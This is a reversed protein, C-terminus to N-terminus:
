NKWLNEDKKKRNKAVKKERIKIRRWGNIKQINPMKWHRDVGGGLPINPLIKKKVLPVNFGNKIIQPSGTSGGETPTPRVKKKQNKQTSWHLGTLLAPEPYEVALARRHPIVGVKNELLWPYSLIADVKIAAEYFTTPFVFTRSKKGTEEISSFQLQVNVVHEGGELRQGSATVFRLIKPAGQFLHQSILGTRVLNAQAGTDILVKLNKIEGNPLITPLEMILQVKDNKTCSTNLIYYKRPHLMTTDLIVECVQSNHSVPEEGNIRTGGYVGETSSGGMEHDVQENLLYEVVNEPIRGKMRTSFKMKYGGLRYRHRLRGSAGVILNPCTRYDCVRSNKEVVNPSGWFRTPKCYGWDSFQCYDLDIHPYADLIGRSKLKGTRPNEIWWKEPHLYGIIDLTRHVIADAEEMKRGEGIKTKAQSYENCPVSAVVLDFDYPSFVNQYDWNMIDVLIDPKSRANKDVCIVQYGMKRLKQGVSQTGSFLDLAKKEKILAHVNSM